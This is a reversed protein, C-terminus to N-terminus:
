HNFVKEARANLLERILEERQWVDVHHERAFRLAGPTLHSNTVVMAGDAVYFLKGNLVDQVADIGVPSNYRKCQIVIKRHDPTTLILDAGHDGSGPTRLVTWGMTVFHAELRREFEWGDMVDIKDVGATRLEEERRLRQERLEQEREEEKKRMEEQQKHLAEASLRRRTILVHLIFLSLPLWVIFVFVKEIFPVNGLLSLTFIADFFGAVALIGNQIVRDLGLVLDLVHLLFPRLRSLASFWEIGIEDMSRLFADVFKRM